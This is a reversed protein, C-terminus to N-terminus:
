RRAAADRLATADLEVVRPEAARYDTYRAWHLRVRFHTIGPWALRDVGDPYAAFYVQRIRERQDGTPEDALGELQATEDDGGVVLAIRPDRRLNQCKRTSDVTDFVIELQDSVAFGVVAAQPGGAGHVSAQVMVRYRRLFERLAAATV